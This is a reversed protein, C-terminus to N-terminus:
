RVPCPECSKPRYVGLRALGKNIRHIAHRFATRNEKFSIGVPFCTPRAPCNGAMPRTFDGTLEPSKVV